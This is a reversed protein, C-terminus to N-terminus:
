PTDDSAVRDAIKRAARHLAVTHLDNRAIWRYTQIEEAVIPSSRADCVFAHMTMKFHSFAHKVSMLEQTPEVSLGVRDAIGRQCADHLSEGDRRRAGPFEWLGGLLAEDPRRTLLVEGRDNSVIGVAVDYHPVPRKKDAIPFTEANDAAHGRCADVLPCADCAPATPTCVSAGLDMMAQNFAGPDQPDILTQAAIGIARRGEARDVQLELALYRALVRTVNGDIAPEPKGFSISVIAAATYPGVGALKRAQVVDDPFAGEFDQVVQRAARHLNRARSYYGLGEWLLLVDDLQASALTSVDPFRQLFREFYPWAQEVRTQQLMIESVWVEYPDDSRRWPLDRAHMGYWDLLNSRFRDAEPPGVEIFASM